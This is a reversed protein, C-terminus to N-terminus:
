FWFGSYPLFLLEEDVDAVYVFESGHSIRESLFKALRDSESRIIDAYRRKIQAYSTQRPMSLTM